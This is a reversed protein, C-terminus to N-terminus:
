WALFDADAPSGYTSTAEGRVTSYWGIDGRSSGLLSSRQTNEQM